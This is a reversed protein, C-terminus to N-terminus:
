FSASASTTASSSASITSTASGTKIKLAKVIAVADTRATGLDKQAAQIKSRADKLATQNAQMATSSGNDPTLTAVESAAAQAQTTADAIKANMDTFAAQAASLNASTSSAIRAQLKTSLDTMTNAVTLVRDSAAEIAGQPIVLAFIRYSKTISQIDTKLSSTATTSSADAAIQAQLTNMASIQAQISTSLTSKETDSLRQMGNVRALLANLGAIRRAIEQDAKKVAASILNALKAAAAEARVTSSATGSAHVGAASLNAKIGLGAGTGVVPAAFALSSALLAGAGAIGIAIRITKTM